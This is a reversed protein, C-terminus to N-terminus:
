RAAAAAAVQALLDHIAPKAVFARGYRRARRRGDIEGSVVITAPASKRGDLEELLDDGREGLLELDLLLVAPRALRIANRAEDLTGVTVARYGEDRLLDGVAERYERDDDVIM